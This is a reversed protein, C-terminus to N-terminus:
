REIKDNNSNNTTSSQGQKYSKKNKQGNSNSFEKRPTKKKNQYRNNSGSNQTSNPKFPITTGPAQYRFFYQIALMVKVNYTLVLPLKPTKVYGLEQDSLPESSLYIHIM